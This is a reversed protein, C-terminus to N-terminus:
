RPTGLVTAIVADDAIEAGEAMLARLKEPAFQAELQARLRQHAAHMVPGRGAEGRAALRADSWGHIRAADELDGRLAPVLALHDAAWWVTGEARLLPLTEHLAPLARALDSKEILAVLWTAAQPWSQRLLGQARAQAVVSETLALAADVNGLSLEAMALTHAALWANRFDGQATLLKLEDAFANRYEDIRGQRKFETARAWRLLKRALPPWDPSEVRQMEDILAPREAGAGVRLALGSLLYLTRYSFARDGLDRYLALAQRAADTALDPAIAWGGGLQGLALWFRARRAVTSTADLLPRAAHWAAVGEALLNGQVWFLGCAGTLGVAVEADQAATAWRIAERLNDLDPMLGDLWPQIPMGFGERDAREFRELMAHAHGGRIAETEGAADLQELAFARTSELLRYRPPERGDAQVLSKDVLAALHDLVDWRDIADDAVVAQASDLAFSGAFVGLRRLTVREVPSLLAHSWELAARLTQQRAPATRTGGALLRLREGLRARVGEIGLLPVRAAALEIALPMGDLRRCIDIAADLSDDGLAFRADAARAREGFLAVAGYGKAERADAHEPVALPGLRYVSEATLKLPEQSTALVTIGPAYRLLAETLRGVADVLHECNDLVILTTLDRLCRALGDATSRERSPAFGISQAVTSCLEATGALPALEVLWAGDAFQTRMQGAVALALRTKGIGGPGAVTVLRKEALLRVVAVIDTLRGLLPSTEAPLNTPVTREARPASAPAAAPEDDLPLAFRYGRGPITGIAEPGLAKRLAIVQMKLNQDEVVRGPWVREFLERRPVVRGRQEVLALLLDFARAGLRVAAGDLLLRRTPTHLEFRGFRYTTSESM